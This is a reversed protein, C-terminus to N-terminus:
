RKFFDMTHSILWLCFSGIASFFAIIGVQIKYRDEIKGVRDKLDCVDNFMGKRGTSDDNEIYSLIRKINDSLEEIKADNM